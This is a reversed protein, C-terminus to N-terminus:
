RGPDQIATVTLGGDEPLRSYLWLWDSPRYWFDAGWFPALAGAPSFHIKFADVQAGGIEVREAGVRRVLMKHPALDSPDIVWFERRATGPPLLDVLGPGFLQYWPADDLNVTKKVEAGKLRGSVTVTNGKREATMDTGKAPETEHWFITGASKTWHTEDTIWGGTSTVVVTDPGRTVKYEVIASRAGHTETYRRAGEEAYVGPAVFAMVILCSIARLKSM